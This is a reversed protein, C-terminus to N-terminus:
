GNGGNNPEEKREADVSTDAEREADVSTDAESGPEAATTVAPGQEHADIAAIAENREEETQWPAHAVLRRLVDHLTTM